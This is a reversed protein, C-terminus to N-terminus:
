RRRASSIASCPNRTEVHLAHDSVASLRGSPGPVSIVQSRADSRRAAYIYERQHRQKLHLTWGRAQLATKVQAVISERELSLRESERVSLTRSM